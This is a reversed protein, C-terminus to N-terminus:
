SASAERAIAGSASRGEPGEPSPMCCTCPCENLRPIQPRVQQQSLTTVPSPRWYLQLSLRCCAALLHVMDRRWAVFHPWENRFHAPRVTQLLLPPM